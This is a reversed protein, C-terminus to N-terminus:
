KVSLFFFKKKTKKYSEAIIFIRIIDYRNVFFVCFPFSFPFFPIKKKKKKYSESM